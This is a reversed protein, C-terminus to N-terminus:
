VNALDTVALLSALYKEFQAATIQPCSISTGALGALVNQCDCVPEQSHGTERGKQFQGPLLPIFPSLAHDPQHTIVAMADALWQEYPLPRLVHGFSRIWNAVDYLSLLDPNVLHFNKGRLEQQQSLYVIANSVYDVPTLDVQFDIDPVSGLQVCAKLLAWFWDRSHITGRQTDGALLGLRYISTPIGRSRVSMLLREAVWKSQAYGNVLGQYQELADDEKPTRHSPPFVNLTSIFHVPKGGAQSALRLIEETGLVNTAKLAEYPYTFNVWAGCHYIAAVNEALRHFEKMGLGLRAQSLDGLVPIIRTEMAADWLGYFTLNGRIKDKGGQESASRTLCYVTAPTRQLLDHLLYAGLFGTSGTLFFANTKTISSTHLTEPCIDAELVTEAELNVGGRDTAGNGSGRQHIEDIVKALEAITPAEFLTRVAIEVQFTTNLHFILQSVLLSHGGLEFFNDHIGIPEINLLKQWLGVITSEIENRPAVYSHEISFRDPAPLAQRNVKGNPTLPIEQLFVVYSPVMYLPLRERVWNLLERATPAYVRNPVVYAVLHKNATSDDCAVVTCERVGPHDSLLVEIEGTEVRFGRIKVQNDFRSFFELTGDSLYRAKDGTRYLREGPKKSFPHPIFKEATLDPRNVYGRALGAGGICLEGAVGVPVPRLQSDLVYTQTNAFPRGIPVLRETEIAPLVSEFFSSDITAETVGYSNILRMQPGCLRLTDRYEWAYWSDSGAILIRMFDLKQQTQELYQLLLRLVGPVFEACDVMERRMLGYLHQPVTLWERPCVVLKRGSCLARVLDGSFVDFSFSAMQLHCTTDSTLAYGKEWAWYANLLSAHTIMVGKPKGTSGSTYLIYALTDKTARDTTISATGTDSAIWEANLSVVRIGSIPLAGMLHEQTLLIALGADDYIAQLREKSYAVDLPVYVGGARLTALVGVIMAVSREVYIGVRVEHDVGISRLYHALQNARHDLARYTIQEDASRIDDIDTGPLVVAIADPTRQAAREFLQDVRTDEQPLDEDTGNWEILLQQQEPITLLPLDLICKEPHLSIEQLLTQFHGLMRMITSPVFLDASYELAIRLGQATEAVDMSIDFKATNSESSIMSISLGPVEVSLAPANQMAFMVQFLPTRSLDREPQLEEVLKEFPLDQNAYAGLAVERVRQLLEKFPPNGEMDTCLVLTNAFFGILRETEIRTRNAIPTGVSIRAQGTYRYLLTQFAALLTMFLTASEQNSLAILADTVPKQIYLLQTAGRYTQVAPRPRDIPLELVRSSEDLQQKWYALQAELTTGQLWQHQCCAFDAYQIPLEPLLPSEGRVFAQYLEVLESVFIGLSWTDSIIHHMTLLLVQDEPALLLLSVRLLPGEVLDFPRRAEESALQHVCSERQNAQVQQLNMVLLRVKSIATIVQRPKGDVSAFTTRLSEHRLVITDIAQELAKTNLKGELRVALPLNYSSTAELQALFWMRQQAFSLPLDDTRPVPKLVQEELTHAHVLQEKLCEALAAPSPTEFIQKLPLDVHFSERLRAFFQTALLSHGGLEFFNEHIGIHKVGLLEQWTAAIRHAIDDGSDGQENQLSSTLSTTDSTSTRANNLYRPEKESGSVLIKAEEVQAERHRETDSLLSFSKSEIWHRQREFPYTPLPVRRPNDYAAIRGWDIPTGLLWLKGAAKLLFAVDSTDEHPHRLSTQITLKSKEARCQRAFTSLTHGPGVELLVQQEEGMVARLGQAFRVPERLQRVWYAADRAEEERIWEGTVNAIYPLQPPQLSVQEVKRRFAEQMPEMMASHFAHSTHLLRSHVGQETLQQQFAKVEARPGAVSCLGPANVAALSLGEPLQERVEAESLSVALMGGEPVEQMLRGRVAVLRLAEEWTFVGALCAAVYEGVSHGLMAQPRVGWEMWLQALAYEVVFLAPQTYKTQGLVEQAQEQQGPEPYLLTRLDRGLLPHLLDAGRDVWQRFIPEQEYLGRGMQVYQSGQGPFLFIVVPPQSSAEGLSVNQRSLAEILQERQQGVLVARHRFARRGVQLTYAVDALPQEPHQELHERLQQCAAQLASPTRASLSLLCYERQSPVVQVPPAEELVVHANTGGIGFSSVGAHRPGGQPNWATLRSNVYFPSDAFPIAPNPQEFHLSPPLAQHQLALVTKILGAIGAATDLHGINTKLSGLACFATKDTSSRFAQTLAAVEIPDGLATGTGHAEVYTISEAPVNAMALAKAIVEAQGEVSPATYGVKMSGDNNIASGKIIAHIHDRDDLADVLRKLVVVGVGSGFITGQAQADFARCHGDPSFIGGKQYYYGSKQAASISAGGALAMSCEGNLLSECALHVAVLSSSCATNVNISPGKLNLKYSVKTPLHDKDNSIVVQLHDLTKLQDRNSLLNLLMYSSMSVGAYVGVRQETCQESDYGANELAQWCCELFLRHQPDMIEAERPSYGFFAADFKDIDELVPRAKIYHPEKLVDPSIGAAELEQESFFTISEVGDHLHQWFTALDSAGPFRGAMGIIAIEEELHDFTDQDNM